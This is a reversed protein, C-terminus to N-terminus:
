KQRFEKYILLQWNDILDSWYETKEKCSERPPFEFVIMIAFILGEM